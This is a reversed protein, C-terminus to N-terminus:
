LFYDKCWSSSYDRQYGLTKCAQKIKHVSGVLGKLKSEFNQTLYQWHEPEINLRNLIPPISNTIYGRKDERMIRGTLEVLEIYDTLKFPLGEPM